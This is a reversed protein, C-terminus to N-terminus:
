AVRPRKPHRLLPGEIETAREDQSHLIEITGTAPSFEGSGHELVQTPESKLPVFSGINSTTVRRVELALPQFKIPERELLQLTHAGNKGAVTGAFVDLESQLSRVGLVVLRNVWASAPITV